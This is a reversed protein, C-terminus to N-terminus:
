QNVFPSPLITCCDIITATVTASAPSYCNNTSDYYFAYYNGSASVSTPTGIATGTATNNAFWRVETGTPATGTILSTLNLTSTPCANSITTASLTPATTGANCACFNNTTIALAIMNDGSVSGKNPALSFKHNGVPLNSFVIPHWNGDQIITGKGYTPSSSGNLYIQVDRNDVTFSSPANGFNGNSSFGGLYVTISGPTTLTFNVNAEETVGSQVGEWGVVFNGGGPPASVVTQVGNVFWFLNTLWKTNDSGDPSGLSTWGTPVKNTGLTITNTVPIITSCSQGKVEGVQLVFLLVISIKIFKLFINEM